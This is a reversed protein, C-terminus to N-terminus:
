VTPGQQNNMKFILLTYTDRELERNIGKGWREGWIVMLENELDALRNRNKKKKLYTWKCLKKKSEVCLPGDYLIQTERDLKVWYPLRPGDM